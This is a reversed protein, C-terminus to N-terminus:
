DQGGPLHGEVYAVLRGDPGVAVAVETGSGLKKHVHSVNGGEAGKAVRALADPRSLTGLRVEWSLPSEYNHYGRKSLHQAIGADNARCNTSCM